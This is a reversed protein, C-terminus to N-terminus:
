KEKKTNSYNTQIGIPQNKIAEIIPEIVYSFIIGSNSEAILGTDEKNNFVKDPHIMYSSIVSAIQLNGTNLNYFLVPGGSFGPNNHGDVIILSNIKASCIGKKILPLPVGDKLYISTMGYPFGLFLVSQSFTIGSSSPNVPRLYSLQFPLVLAIIDIQKDECHITKVSINLWKGERMIAIIDEDHINKVVHKATILYEKDDVLVIFATGISERFKILFTNTLAQSPILSHIVAASVLNNANCHTSILVTIWFAFFFIKKKM